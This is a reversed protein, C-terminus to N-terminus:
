LVALTNLEITQVYCEAFPLHCNIYLYITGQINDRSSM